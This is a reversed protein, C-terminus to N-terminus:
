NNTATPLILVCTIGGCKCGYETYTQELMNRNTDVVEHDEPVNIKLIKNCHMCVVEEIKMM